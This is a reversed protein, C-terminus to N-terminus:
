TRGKPSAPPTPLPNSRPEKSQAEALSSGTQSFFSDRAKCLSVKNFDKPSINEAIFAESLKHISQSTAKADAYGKVDGREVVGSIFSTFTRHLDRREQAAELAKYHLIFESCAFQFADVRDFKCAINFAQHFLQSDLSHNDVVIPRIVQDYIETMMTHIQYVMCRRLHMLLAKSSGRPSDLAQKKVDRYSELLGNFHTMVNNRKLIPSDFAKPQNRLGMMQLNLRLKSMADMFQNVSQSIDPKLEKMGYCRALYSLKNSSIYEIATGALVEQREAFLEDQNLRKLLSKTMILRNGDIIDYERQTREPRIHNIYVDFGFIHELEIQKLKDIPKNFVLEFKGDTLENVEIVRLLTKEETFLNRYPNGSATYLHPNNLLLQLQLTQNLLDVTSDGSRLNLKPLVKDIAQIRSRVRDRLQKADEILSELDKIKQVIRAKEHPGDNITRLRDIRQEHQRIIEEFLTEIESQKERMALVSQLRLELASDNILSYNRGQTHRSLQSTLKPSLTLNSSVDFYETGMVVHDLMFFQQDEFLAKNQGSKGMTDPDQAIFALMFFSGFDDIAQVPFVGEGLPRITSQKDTGSRNPVIYNTLETINDFTIMLCPISDELYVFEFLSTKLGLIKSISLAIYERQVETVEAVEKRSLVTKMTNLKPKKIMAQTPFKVNPLDQIPMELFGNLSDEFAHESILSIKETVGGISGVVKYYRATELDPSTHEYAQPPNLSHYLRLLSFREQEIPELAAGQSELNKNKKALEKFLAKFDTQQLGKETLLHTIIQRMRDAKEQIRTTASVSLMSQNLQVDIASPSM